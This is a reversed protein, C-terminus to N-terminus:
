VHCVSETAVMQNESDCRRRTMVGGDPVATGAAGSGCRGSHSGRADKRILPEKNVSMATAENSTHGAVVVAALLSPTFFYRM